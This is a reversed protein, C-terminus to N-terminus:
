TKQGGLFAMCIGCNMGCLAIDIAQMSIM